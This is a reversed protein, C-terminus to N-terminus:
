LILHRNKGYNPMTSCLSPRMSGAPLREAGDLRSLYWQLGVSFGTWGLLHWHTARGSRERAAPRPLGLGWAGFLGGDNGALARARTTVSASGVCGEVASRTKLERDRQAPEARARRASPAGKFGYLFKDCTRDARDTPVTPRCGTPSRACSVTPSVDPRMLLCWSVAETRSRKIQSM